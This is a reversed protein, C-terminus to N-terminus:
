PAARALPVIGCRGTSEIRFANVPRAAVWAVRQTSLEARLLGAAVRLKPLSSVDQIHGWEEELEPRPGAPSWVFLPVGISALYTRISAGSHTSTDKFPSLVLVVARRHSGTIANLGAVGVADAARRPTDDKVRNDGYSRSLLWVLGADGAAVDTSPPFLLAPANSTSKFPEGVPWLVRMWTGSDLSADHQADFPGLGIAGPSTRPNLMRIAETPDPDLIFIVLAPSNEIASARVPSGASAFCDGLTAPPASTWQRVGVPTLESDAVYGVAGGVVLERRSVIGGAFRMEAAILHPRDMSLRPLRGHFTQDLPISKGDVTLSSRVPKAGLLHEWRLEASVQMGKGDSKLAIVFEALPRPLNVAQEARAMEQGRGDYGIAVLDGPVISPGFDVTAQWPAQKMEAVQRGDLLIRVSKIAPGVQLEVSQPGSILGLFLSLFVLQPSM